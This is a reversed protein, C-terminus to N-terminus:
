DRKCRNSKGYGWGLANLDLGILRMAAHVDGDVAIWKGGVDPRNQELLWNKVREDVGVAEGNGAAVREFETGALADVVGVV